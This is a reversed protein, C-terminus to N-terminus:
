EETFAVSVFDRFRLNQGTDLELMVEGQGDVTAATVVGEMVQPELPKRQDVGVVAQGILAEAARMPPEISVVEDLSMAGGNALELMPRGDAEFRVGVVMGAMVSGDAAPLGKVYHGILTSASAFRQQGSLLGLSETLATSLEIERISSIQNLLEENGTPELPDQSTLQTILLKLFDESGMGTFSNEARPENSLGSLASIGTTDV